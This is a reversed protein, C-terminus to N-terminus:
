EYSSDECSHCGKKLGWSGPVIMSPEERFRLAFPISFRLSVGLLITGPIVSSGVRSKAVDMLERDDFSAVVPRADFIEMRLLGKVGTPNFSKVEGVVSSNVASTSAVGSSLCLCENENLSMNGEGDGEVHTGRKPLRLLPLPELLFVATLLNREAVCAELGPAAAGYTGIWPGAPLGGVGVLRWKMSLWVLGVMARDRGVLTCCLLEDEGSGGSFRKDVNSTSRGFLTGGYGAVGCGASGDEGCIGDPCEERDIGYGM